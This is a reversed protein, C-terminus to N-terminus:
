PKAARQEVNVFDIKRVGDPIMPKFVTEAFREDFRWDSLLAAFQRSDALQMYAVVLKWTM